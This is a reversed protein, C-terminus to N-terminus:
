WLRIAVGLALLQPDVGLDSAFIRRFEFLFSLPGVGTLKLGAVISYTTFTQKDGELDSPPLTNRWGIGGGGYFGGDRGAQLYVAEINLQYEKLGRLFTVDGGPMLEVHGNRLVPIRLLAGLVEEKQSNDYGFRVGIEPAPWSEQPEIPAQAAAGGTRLAVALAACAVV